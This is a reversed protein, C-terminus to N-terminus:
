KNIISQLIERDVVNLSSFLNGMAQQDMQIMSFIFQPVFEKIVLSYAPDNKADPDEDPDVGDDFFDSADLFNGTSIGL